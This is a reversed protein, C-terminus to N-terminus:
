RRLGGDLDSDWLQMRPTAKSGLPPTRGPQPFMRRNIARIWRVTWYLLGLTLGLIASLGAAVMPEASDAQGSLQLGLEVALIAALSCETAFLIVTFFYSAVQAISRIAPSVPSPWGSPRGPGRGTPIPGAFDPRRNM